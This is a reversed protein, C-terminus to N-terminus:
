RWRRARTPRLRRERYTATSANLGAAFAGTIAAFVTLMMAMAIILEVLTFGDDSRLM